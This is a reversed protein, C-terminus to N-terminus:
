VLVRQMYAQKEQKLQELKNLQQDIRNDLSSLFAAIKEQEPLSPINILFELLRSVEIMKGQRAGIPTITKLSEVFSHSVFFNKWYIVSHQEKARLVTYANSTLGDMKSVYIGREYSTLDILFDNILVIKSAKKKKETEKNAYGQHQEAREVTRNEMVTIYPLDARGKKSVRDFVEGLKKEEWDEYDTGDDKKFRLSGNFLRQSYGQKQEKLLEVLKSQAEIREDLNSLFNAIKTQEPLSPLNIKYSEVDGKSINKQAGGQGNKIMTNEFRNFSLVISLFLNNVLDKDTEILGVRQNLLLHEENVVSVRGVNGTLSVLIDNVKLAQHSTLDKPKDKIYSVNNSDVYTSGSVNKITIVKYKGSTSYDSSKFAYGNKLNAVEGLRKEEWESYTEGDENLFRLKREDNKLEETM